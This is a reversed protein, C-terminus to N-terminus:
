CFSAEDLSPSLLFDSIVDFYPQLCVNSEQPDREIPKGRGKVDKFLGQQRALEIREDVMSNWGKISTPMPASGVGSPHARAKASTGTKRSQAVKAKATDIAGTQYDISADRARYVRAAVEGATARKNKNHTSTGAIASSSPMISARSYKVLPQGDKSTPHRFTHEWPYRPPDGEKWRYDPATQDVDENVTLVPKPAAYMPEASPQQIKRKTGPVRLPKYKDMLMRLVSDEISEEGQWPVHKRSEELIRRQLASAIPSSSLAAEAQEEEEELRAQALIHQAASTHRELDGKGGATDRASAAVQTHQGRQLLLLLRLQRAHARVQRTETVLM